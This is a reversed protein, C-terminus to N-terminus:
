PLVHERLESTRAVSKLTLRRYKEFILVYPKHMSKYYTEWRLRRTYVRHILVGGTSGNGQFWREPPRPRPLMLGSGLPASGLLESPGM